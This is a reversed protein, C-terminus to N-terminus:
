MKETAGFHPFAAYTGGDVILTQGTIFSALDSCLFVLPGAIEDAEGMRGLPQISARAREDPDETFHAQQAKMRPTAIMDPAVANVRIGNRGWEQAM